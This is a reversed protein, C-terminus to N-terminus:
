NFAKLFRLNLFAEFRTSNQYHTKGNESHHILDGDSAVLFAKDARAITNPLGTDQSTAIITKHLEANSTKNEERAHLQKGNVEPNATVGVVVLRHTEKQKEVWEDSIGDGLQELIVHVGLEKAWANVAQDLGSAEARILSFEGNNENFEPLRSKYLGFDSIMLRESVQKFVQRLVNKAAQKRSIIGGLTRAINKFIGTLSNDNRAQSLFYNTLTTKGVGMPGCVYLLIPKEPKKGIINQVIEQLIQRHLKRREDSRVIHHTSNKLIEQKKKDSFGGLWRDQSEKAYAEARDAVMDLIHEPVKITNSNKTM